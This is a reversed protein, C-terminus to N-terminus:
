AKAGDLVAAYAGRAPFCGFVGGTHLLLVKAGRAVNGCDIEKVLGVLAKTGYTPDLVIGSARAFSAALAIEEASAVGYGAGVYQDLIEVRASVADPDPGGYRDHVGQAIKHVRAAMDGRTGGVSVALIRARSGGFALAGTALGATTGGSGIPHVVVDFAVSTDRAQLVLEQWARAYGMAGTATSAGEPIVHALGGQTAYRRAIEAMAESARAYGARDTWVVDAGALRALLWNGDLPAPAGDDTRLLLTCALGLQAAVIATARCHNSQAAGCTVLATAGLRKADALIYELKRIKNGGAAGATLDDRKVWLEVGSDQRPWREVKEIPTPLRALRIFPPLDM